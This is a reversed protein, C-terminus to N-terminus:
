KMQGSVFEELFFMGIRTLYRCREAHFEPSEVGSGCATRRGDGIPRWEPKGMGGKSDDMAWCEYFANGEEVEDFLLEHAEMRLEWGM